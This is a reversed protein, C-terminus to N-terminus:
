GALKKLLDSGTPLKGTLISPDTLVRLGAKFVGSCATPNANAPTSKLATAHTSAATNGAGGSQEARGAIVKMSNPM